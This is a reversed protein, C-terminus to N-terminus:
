ANEDNAGKAQEPQRLIFFLAFLMVLWHLCGFAPHSVPTEPDSSPM